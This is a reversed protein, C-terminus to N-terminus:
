PVIGKNRKTLKKGGLVVGKERRTMPHTKVRTKVEDTAKGRGKERNILATEMVPKRKLAQKHRHKVTTATLGENQKKKWSV